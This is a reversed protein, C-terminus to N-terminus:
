RLGFTNQLKHFAEHYEEIKMLLNVRFCFYKSSFFLYREHPLTLINCKQLIELAIDISDLHNKFCKTPIGCLCFFGNNCPFVVCKTDICLSVILDYNRRAVSIFNNLCEEIYFRNDMSYMKQAFVYQSASISGSVYVSDKELASILEKDSFIYCHKVGNLFIKKALSDIFIYRKAKTIQTLLNYDFIHNTDNWYMGGYLNDIFVYAGSSNAFDILEDFRDQRINEGCGYLPFNIILLDINNYKRLAKYSINEGQEYYIISGIDKLVNIYTYYIPSVLLSRHIIGKKFLEYLCLFAANTGNSVIAMQSADFGLTSLVTNESIIKEKLAGFEDSFLYDSIIQLSDITFRTSIDTSFSINDDDKSWNSLFITDANTKQLLTDISSTYASDYLLM